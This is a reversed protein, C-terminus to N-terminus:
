LREECLIIKKDMCHCGENKSVVQLHSPHQVGITCCSQPYACLVWAKQDTATMCGSGYKCCQRCYSSSSQRKFRIRSHSRRDGRGSSPQEAAQISSSNYGENGRLDLFCALSCQRASNAHWAVGGYVRTYLIATHMWENLNISLLRSAVRCEACNLITAPPCLTETGEKLSRPKCIYGLHEGETTCM